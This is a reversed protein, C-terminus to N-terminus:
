NKNPPWAFDIGLKAKNAQFRENNVKYVQEAGLEDIHKITENYIRELEEESEAMIMKVFQKEWYVGIEADMAAEDTGGRPNINDFAADNYVWQAFYKDINVSIEDPRPCHQNLM